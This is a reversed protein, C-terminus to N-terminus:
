LYLGNILYDADTSRSKLVRGRKWSDRCYFGVLVLLIITFLLGLLLLLIVSSERLFSRTHSYTDSEVGAASVFFSFPILVANQVPCIAIYSRLLREDVSAFSFLMSSGRLLTTMSSDRNIAPYKM